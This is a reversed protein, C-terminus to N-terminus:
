APQLAIALVDTIRTVYHVNLGHLYEAPIEEVDRRNQECLIVDTAGARLAALLKERIGGVPLVEGRLSAEGTMALFPKVARGTLLSTLATTITIGASPGDKPIAGEPFHVHINWKSIEDAEIGLSEANAKVWQMALTASEKMVDGLNGTVTLTGGGKQAAYRSAEVLLIEGGAQTWALGVAVGPTMVAPCNQRNLLPKGLLESVKEATLPMAFPTKRMRALVTKRFLSELQKELQRVGSEATYSDILLALADDDLSFEPANEGHNKLMRPILHLRAIKLKEARVYGPIEIVEIRDMLPQSITQTTNATAIFLVHSLDFDIDVYNDHFHSNQEPDLVELLAAAPDGKYDAGIKDLEDLVIVPNATGARKVADIIRGPMAGIYTRRHGRIEAEDHMGGFAVRQYKRGLADAISRGISTKGVGPPGVLCIIPAKGTPNDLLMAIQEIIREKVKQLGFHDAELQAEAATIDARDETVNSWPLSVLTDLYSYQVSYDPSNPNLHALKSLEKEFTQMVEASMGSAKARERLNEEDNDSSGYLETRIADMQQQLFAQRHNNEMGEKARDMIERMADLQSDTAVLLQLLHDAREKIRPETLLAIKDRTDIPLNSALMNVKQADPMDDDIMMKIHATPTGSKDGLKEVMLMIATLTDKFHKNSPHPKKDKLIEISVAPLDSVLPSIAEGLVKFRDGAMVFANKQGDPTEIIRLVRAIVGIDYLQNVSPNDDSPDRQCIVGIPIGTREALEAVRISNERGLRVTQTVGPFLVLNRTPLVPLAETDPEMEPKRDIKINIHGIGGLDEFPFNM